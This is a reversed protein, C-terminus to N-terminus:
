PLGGGEGGEGVVREEKGRGKLGEIRDELVAIEAEVRLLRERLIGAYEEDSMVTVPSWARRAMRTWFGERGAVAAQRAAYWDYSVQGVGGFLAWM